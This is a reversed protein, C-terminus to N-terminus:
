IFYLYWMALTPNRACCATVVGAAWSALGEGPLGRLVCLGSRGLVFTRKGLPTFLTMSSILAGLTLGVCLMCLPLVGFRWWTAMLVLGGVGGAVATLILRVPCPCLM